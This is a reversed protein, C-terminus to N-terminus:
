CGVSFAEVFSLYDFLDVVTDANFDATPANAAFDNVFDLYDFFDFVQDRNFDGRCQNCGTPVGWRAFYTSVQGGATTFSGGVALDGNPMVALAQVTPNLGSVLSNLGSGLASWESGNWKAIRNAPLGGATTFDGGAVLDGNPM